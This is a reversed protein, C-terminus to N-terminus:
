HWFGLWTSNLMDTSLWHLVHWLHDCPVTDARLFHAQCTCMWGRDKTHLIRQAACVPCIYTCRHMHLMEHVKDDCISICGAIQYWSWSYWAKWHEESFMQGWVCLGRTEFHTCCRCCCSVCIGMLEPAGWMVCWCLSMCVTWLLFVIWWSFRSSSCLLGTLLDTISVYLIDQLISQKTRLIKTKKTKTDLINMKIFLLSPYQHDKFYCFGLKNLLCIKWAIVM